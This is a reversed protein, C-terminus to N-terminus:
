RGLESSCSSPDRQGAKEGGFCIPDVRRWQLDHPAIVDAAHTQIRGLRGLVPRVDAAPPCRTLDEHPRM